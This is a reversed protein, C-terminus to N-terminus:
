HRVLPHRQVPQGNHGPPAHGVTWDVWQFRAFNKYMAREGRELELRAAREEFMVALEHALKSLELVLRAPAVHQHVLVRKIREVIGDYRLPNVVARTEFAPTAFDLLLIGLNKKECALVQHAM